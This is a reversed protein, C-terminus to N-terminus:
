FFPENDMVRTNNDTNATISATSPINASTVVSLRYKLWPAPIDATKRGTSPTAMKSSAAPAAMKTRFGHLKHTCMTTTQAIPM